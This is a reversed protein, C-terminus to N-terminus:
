KGMKKMQEIAVWGEPTIGMIETAVGLTEYTDFYIM